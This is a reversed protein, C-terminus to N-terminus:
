AKLGQSLDGQPGRLNIRQGSQVMLERIFMIGSMDGYRKSGSRRIRSNWTSFKLNPTGTGFSIVNANPTRTQYAASTRGQAEFIPLFLPLFRSASLLAFVICSVTYEIRPDQYAFVSM